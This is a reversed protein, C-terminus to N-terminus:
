IINNGDVKVDIVEWPPNSPKLQSKVMENILKLRYKKKKIIKEIWERMQLNINDYKNKIFELAEFESKHKFNSKISKLSLIRVPSDFGFNYAGNVAIYGYIPGTYNMGEIIVSDRDLKVFHYAIGIGETLHMIKLQEENLWLTSLKVQTGESPWQTAPISGYSSLCSAFVVDSNYLTAPISCLEVNLSFKNCLQYPSRNSGISLIPIRNDLSIQIGGVCKGNTFSFPYQPSDFPYSIAKDFFDLEKLFIENLKNNKIKM